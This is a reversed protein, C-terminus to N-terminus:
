EMTCDAPRKSLSSLAQACYKMAIWLMIRFVVSEPMLTSVMFQAKPDLKAIWEKITQSEKCFIRLLEEDCEDGSFNYTQRLYTYGDEPNDPVMFGGSSVTANGGGTAMKELVLVNAGVERAAAAAPGGSGGFGIVLVDCTRHWKVDNIRSISMANATAMPAAAVAATAGALLSRRTLSVNESM